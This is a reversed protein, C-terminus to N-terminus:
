ISLVFYKRDNNYNKSSSVLVLIWCCNGRKKFSHCHQLNLGPGQSHHALVRVSLWMRCAEVLGQYVCIMTFISNGLFKLSWLTQDEWIFSFVVATCSFFFDGWLWSLCHCLPAHIGSEWPVPISLRQAVPDVYFGGSPSASDRQCGWLGPHRAGFIRHTPFLVQNIEWVKRRSLAPQSWDLYIHRQNGAKGERSLLQSPLAEALFPRWYWRTWGLEGSQKTRRAAWQAM